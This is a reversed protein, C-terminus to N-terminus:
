GGAVSSGQRPLRRIGVAKAFFDDPAPLHRFFVEKAFALFDRLLLTSKDLERQVM